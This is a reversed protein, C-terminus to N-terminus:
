TSPGCRSRITSATLRVTVTGNDHVYAIEGQMSISDGETFKAAAM